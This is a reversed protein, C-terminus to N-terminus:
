KKKSAFYLIIGLLGLGLLGPVIEPNRNLEHSCKQFLLYGGGLLVIVIILSGPGENDQKDSM